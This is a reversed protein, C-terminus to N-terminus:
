PGSWVRRPYQSIREVFSRSLVLRTQSGGLEEAIDEARFPTFSASIEFDWANLDVLALLHVMLEVASFIAMTIFRNLFSDSVFGGPLALLFATGAYTTVTNASEAVSFHMDRYLYSILNNQVATMAMVDLAQAM